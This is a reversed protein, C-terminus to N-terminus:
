EDNRGNELARIEDRIEAAKEFEEDEILKQLTEKLTSVKRKMNMNKGARKPIKGTHMTNGSHVKRFVPDLKDHFAKYCEDCGFKGIEVFEPYTLGCKPCKLVSHNHHHNEGVHQEFNLLGSLLHHISFSGSGAMVDGKEKACQDCLHYEMKDGNVIKTFHLTAPRLHCEQCEM